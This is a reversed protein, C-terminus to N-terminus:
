DRWLNRLARALRRITTIESQDVRGGRRNRPCTAPRSTGDGARRAQHATLELRAM